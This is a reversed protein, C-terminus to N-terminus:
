KGPERNFMVFSPADSRAVVLDPWGDGDLDGAAMGYIAGAGDGFRVQRYNKGTGDNFYIIGPAGVYGVIIEPKGDRNLYAAIM